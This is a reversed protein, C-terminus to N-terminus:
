KTTQMFKSILHRLVVITVPKTFLDAVNEKTEIDTILIQQRESLERIHHLRVDFHKTRASTKANKSIFNAAQNDAYIRTKNQKFSASECVQQLYIIEKYWLHHPCEFSIGSHPLRNKLYAAHRMALEWFDLPLQSGILLTHATQTLTRWVREALGMSEHM